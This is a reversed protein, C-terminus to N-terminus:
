LNICDLVVNDKQCDGLTVVFVDIVNILRFAVKGRGIEELRAGTMRNLVFIGDEAKRRVQGQM